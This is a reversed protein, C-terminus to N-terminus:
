KVVSFNKLDKKVVMGMGIICNNGIKVGERIVTRSAVFTGDGIRVGGNLIAGTSIHCHNGVVVDHEITASTNIITNFGIKANSNIVVFHHVITGELIKSSKSVYAHKSIVVPFNFKLKKIRNFLKIRTQPSKIFGISIFTLIKKNNKFKDLYKDDGLIKYNLLKKTKTNDILGLIKFKKSSNIVDICSKAHGGAGILILNKM